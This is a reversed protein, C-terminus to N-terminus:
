ANGNTEKARHWGDCYECRYVTLRLGEKVPAARAADSSEYRVKRRFRLHTCFRERPAESRAQDIQTRLKSLKEQLKRRHKRAADGTGSVAELEDRVANRRDLLEVLQQAGKGSKV